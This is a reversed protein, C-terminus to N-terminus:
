TKSRGSVSQFAFGGFVEPYDYRPSATVAIYDAGADFSLASPTRWTYGAFAISQVGRSEDYSDSKVTSVFVGAYWGQAADYALGLQAAPGDDSLSVGRYRYDSVISASGSFQAWANGISSLLALVVAGPFIARRM